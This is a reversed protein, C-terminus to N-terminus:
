ECCVVANEEAVDNVFAEIMEGAFRHRRLFLGKLLNHFLVRVALKSFLIMKFIHVRQTLELFFHRDGRKLIIQRQDATHKVAVVALDDGGALDDAVARGGAGDADRLQLRLGGAVNPVHLAHAKGCRRRTRAVPELFVGIEFLQGGGSTRENKREVADFHFVAIHRVARCLDREIIDLGEQVTDGGRRHVDEEGLIFLM